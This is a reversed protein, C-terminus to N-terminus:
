QAHGPMAPLPMWHSPDIACGDVDFYWLDNQQDYCAKYVEGCAILVFAGDKPAAEIPQWM